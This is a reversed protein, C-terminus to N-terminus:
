KSDKIALMIVDLRKQLKETIFDHQNKNSAVHRKAKHDAITREQENKLSLLQQKTLQHLNVM